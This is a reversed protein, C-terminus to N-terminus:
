RSDGVEDLGEMAWIEFVTVGAMFALRQGDPSLKVFQESLEEVGEIPRPEGGTAPILYLACCDASYAIELNMTSYVLERGDPTWGVSRFGVPPSLEHVDRVEGGAAPVISLRSWFGDEQRGNTIFALSGGDPSVAMSRFGPAPALWREDGSALDRAILQNGAAEDSTTLFLTRGDPSLQFRTYVSTPARLESYLLFPHLTGSAVDFRYLGRPHEPGQAALLLSGGDPWWQLGYVVRFALPVRREGDGAPSSLVLQTRGGEAVATYALQRGDPSWEYNAPRWGYPDELQVPTSRLRGGDLDVAATRLSETNAVVYYVYRGNAVGVPRHNWADSLVLTAPGVAAGAEVPVRWVGPTGAGESLFLVSGDPLWELFRVRSHSAGIELRSERTGDMSLVVLEREESEPGARVDYIVHRADPSFKARSPRAWGDFTKLAQSAGGDAAITMLTTPGGQSSTGALIRSGDPSWDWLWGIRREPNSFVVRHPSAAPPGDVGVEFDLVRLEVTNGILWAYALHAGDRSFASAPEPAEWPGEGDNSPTALVHLDGTRLDRVALGFVPYSVYSAYRGDPSLSGSGWFDEGSWLRRVVVDGPDGQPVGAVIADSATADSPTRALAEGGPGPDCGQLLLALTPVTVVAALRM